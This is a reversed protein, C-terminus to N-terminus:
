AIDSYMLGVARQTFFALYPTVIISLISLQPVYGYIYSLIGHIVAMIVAILIIVAVVKGIGIRKIDRFAEPINLAEGLSGTNALRSEGMAQVFAFIIFVVVAVITTIAVAGWLSAWAAESVASVAAASSNAAATANAPATAAQQIIDYLQGPINTILAMILAVIAPIIFYVISVVLLKLGTILDDKWDFGPAAEDHDIGSKLIKIQYGSIILAVIIGLIFLIFAVIMYASQDMVGLAFFVAGLAVIVALAITVLIYIALKELNQSPFIFAEKIIETIEM